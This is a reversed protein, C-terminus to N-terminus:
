FPHGNKLELWKERSYKNPWHTWDIRYQAIEHDEVWHLSNEDVVRDPFRIGDLHDIAHQFIRAVYGEYEETLINGERDHASILIKQARPVIGFIRDTSFCGECWLLQEDSQWLIEPNIFAKLETPPTHTCVATAATDVLIIRKQIGIQPAALGVLPGEGFAVQYMTEITGQIEESSIDCPCINTSVENLHPDTPASFLAMSLLLHIM